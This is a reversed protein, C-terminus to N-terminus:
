LVEIEFSKKKDLIEIGKKSLNLIKKEIVKALVIKEAWLSNMCSVFKELQINNKLCFEKHNKIESNKGLEELILREEEM